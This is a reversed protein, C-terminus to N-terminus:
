AGAAESRLRVDGSAGAVRQCYAEVDAWRRAAHKRGAIRGELDAIEKVTQQREVETRGIERELLELM